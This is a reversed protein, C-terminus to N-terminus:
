HYIRSSVPQATFDEKSLVATAQNVLRWAGHDRKLCRKFGKTDSIRQSRQADETSETNFNVREPIQQEKITLENISIPHISRLDGTILDGLVWIVNLSADKGKRSCQV